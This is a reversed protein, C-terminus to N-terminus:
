CDKRQLGSIVPVLPVPFISTVLHYLGSNEGALFSVLRKKVSLPSLHYQLSPFNGWHLRLFSKFIYAKCIPHKESLGQQSHGTRLLCSPGSFSTYGTYAGTVQAVQVSSWWHCEVSAGSQGSASTSTVSTCKKWGLMKLGEYLQLLSPSQVPCKAGDVSERWSHHAQIKPKAGHM